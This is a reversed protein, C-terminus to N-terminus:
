CPLESLMRSCAFTVLLQYEPSFIPDENKEKGEQLALEAVCLSYRCAGQGCCSRAAIGARHRRRVDVFKCGASRFLERAPRSSATQPGCCIAGRSCFLL